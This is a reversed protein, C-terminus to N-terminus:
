VGDFQTLNGSHIISKLLKGYNPDTAYVGTLSDAFKDVDPLNTRCKAYVPATALLRAHEDFAESLSTFKRFAARIFVSKGHIVERTMTFVSPDGKRAKMGFPNNSGPPMHAGRGSELAWQAISISAPIKWKVEAARAADVVDHPIPLSM